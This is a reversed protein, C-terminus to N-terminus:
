VHARGIQEWAAIHEPRIKMKENEAGLEERKKMRFIIEM